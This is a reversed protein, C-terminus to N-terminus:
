LNLKTPTAKKEIISAEEDSLFLQIQQKDEGILIMDDFRVMKKKGDTGEFAKKKGVAVVPEATSLVVAPRARKGINSRMISRMPIFEAIISSVSSSNNKQLALQQSEKGLSASSGALASNQVASGPTSGIATSKSSLLM